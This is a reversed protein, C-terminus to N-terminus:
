GNLVCLTSSSCLFRLSKYGRLCRPASAPVSNRKAQALASLAQFENEIIEEAGGRGRRKLHM